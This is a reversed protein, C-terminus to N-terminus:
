EGVGCGSRNKLLFKSEAAEVYARCIMFVEALQLESAM